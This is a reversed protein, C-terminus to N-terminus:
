ILSKAYHYHIEIVEEGNLLYFNDNETEIMIRNEDQYWVVYMNLVKM